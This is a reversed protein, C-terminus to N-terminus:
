GSNGAGTGSLSSTGGFDVAVRVGGRVRRGAPLLVGGEVIGFDFSVSAATTSVAFFVSSVTSTESDGLGFGGLRVGVLRAVVEERAVVLGSGAVSGAASGSLPGRSIM